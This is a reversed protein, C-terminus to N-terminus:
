LEIDTREPKSDAEPVKTAILPKVLKALPKPLIFKQPPAKSMGHPAYHFTLLSIFFVLGIVLPFGWVDLWTKPLHATEPDGHALLHAVSPLDKRSRFKTEANGTKDTSQVQTAEVTEKKAM